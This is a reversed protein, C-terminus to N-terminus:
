GIVGAKVYSRYEEESMGLLERYVYFNDEGMLPAAKWPPVVDQDQWLPTRDSFLPGEQPHTTEVFFARAEHQPDEAVEKANQVPGSPVGAQQLVQAAEQASRGQTWADILADLEQGHVKRKAPSSFRDDQALAPGIVRCLAKWECEDHVSLVCWQDRGKCRYCGCPAAPEDDPCNGGPAAGSERAAAEMLAPGILSCVVEYESLDIYQGKGTNERHELAALVAFAGYLGAMVDGYSFGPGVPPGERYSTLHTLGGLAHVTPAYAVYDKWPGTQGMGSSSLMILDPRVETLRDYTLGWNTMVRPSFNEILIDCAGVLRMLIGAAEPHRMDLTIGRKNRNWTRFYAGRNVEAGEMTRQTQVKIVEAGFDALIRTAYPGALVRTFDLVRMGKLVEGAKMRTM